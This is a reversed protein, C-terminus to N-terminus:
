PRSLKRSNGRKRRVGAEGEREGELNRCKQCILLRSGFNAMNRRLRERVLRAQSYADGVRSGRGAPLICRAFMASLIWLRVEDPQQTLRHWLSALERSFDGRAAKPCWKLTPVMTSHLTELSPIDAGPPLQPPPQTALDGGIEGGEGGEVEQINEGTDPNVLEVAAEEEAGAGAGVVQREEEDEGGVVEVADNLEEEEDEDEEEDPNVVPPAEEAAHQASARHPVQVEEDGEEEAAAEEVAAVEGGGGERGPQSWLDSARARGRRRREEEEVSCDFDVLHAPRVVAM